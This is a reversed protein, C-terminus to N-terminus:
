LRYTVAMDEESSSSEQISASDHLQCMVSM